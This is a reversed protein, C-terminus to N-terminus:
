SLPEGMMLFDPAQSQEATLTFNAYLWYNLVDM